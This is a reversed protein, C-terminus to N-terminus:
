SKEYIKSKARYPRKTCTLFDSVSLQLDPSLAPAVRQLLCRVDALVFDDLRYVHTFREYTQFQLDKSKM